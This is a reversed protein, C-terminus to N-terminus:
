INKIKCINVHPAIHAKAALLERLLMVTEETTMDSRGRKNRRLRASLSPATSPPSPRVISAHPPPTGPSQPTTEPVPEKPSASPYVKTM